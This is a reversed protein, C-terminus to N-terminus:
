LEFVTTEKLALFLAPRTQPAFVCVSTFFSNGDNIQRVSSPNAMTCSVIGFVSLM